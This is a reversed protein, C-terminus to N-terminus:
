LVKSVSLPVRDIVYIEIRFIGAHKNLSQQAQHWRQSASKLTGLLTTLKLRIDCGQPSQLMCSQRWKSAAAAVNRPDWNLVRAHSLHTWNPRGDTALGPSSARGPERTM